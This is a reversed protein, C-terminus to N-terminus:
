YIGNIHNQYKKNLLKIISDTYKIGTIDGFSCASNSEIIIFEPNERINGDKDKSSQTKVDFGGIDLGISKLAKICELVINDWNIPKDFLPNDELIWNCNSNNRFWRQDKPTNSKLVKRCTYFCGDETIHLRYEKNYNYFKEFIYNDLNRDKIWSKLEEKNDLKYNGTGRSGYIHKAIIPYPLESLALGQDGDIPDYYRVAYDDSDITYWDSTKIKAKTFCKKMLLKNSSNKIGNITNIEIRNGGNTITDPLNTVSGLRIISKFPFKPLNKILVDHTIHRSRVQSKFKTLKKIM